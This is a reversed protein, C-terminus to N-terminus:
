KRDKNKDLKRERESERDTGEEATHLIHKASAEKVLLNVASSFSSNIPPSSVYIGTHLDHKIILPAAGFFKFEM